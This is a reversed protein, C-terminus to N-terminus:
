VLELFSTLEPSNKLWPILQKAEDITVWKSSIIKESELESPKENPSIKLDLSNNELFKAYRIQLYKKEIEGKRIVEAIVYYGFMKPTSGGEKLDLSLEEALERKLTEFRSESKQPKGGPLQWNKNDKSVLAIKRDRTLLWCYIQTVPLDKHEKKIVVSSFWQRKYQM